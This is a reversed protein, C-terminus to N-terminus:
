FNLLTINDCRTKQGYRDWGIFLKRERMQVKWDRETCIVDIWKM